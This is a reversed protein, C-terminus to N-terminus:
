FGGYVGLFHRVIHIHDEFFEDEKEGLASLPLWFAKAADDGGKVQPLGHELSAPLEIFFAQTITRGRQSREPYDFLHREKINQKLIQAPVHISTEEKLEKLASDELTLGSILFGGPLALLGKGPHFKRRVVLVHGSQVVVVDTTVFVPEFPVGIFKTDAKYKRIFEFERLLDAFVESNRYNELFPVVEDPVRDRWENNNEQFFSERLSTAHTLRLNVDSRWFDEFHWQPFLNLYYSTRDKFHGVLAVKADGADELESNDLIAETVSNQVEAIWFNDNYPYDRVACFVLRMSELPFCARIMEERMQPTWPNRVNPASRASGLVVIVKEGLSLAHKILEQHAQHFPQFRGIVVAFGYKYEM